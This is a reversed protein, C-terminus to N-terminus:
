KILIINLLSSVLGNFHVKEVLYAKKWCLFTEGIEIKLTWPTNLFILFTYMFYGLGLATSTVPLTSPGTHFLRIGGVISYAIAMVIALRKSFKSSIGNASGFLITKNM